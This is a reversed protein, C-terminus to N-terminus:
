DMPLYAIVERNLNAPFDNEWPERVWLHHMKSRGVEAVWRREYGLEELLWRLREADDPEIDDPKLGTCVSWAEGFEIM